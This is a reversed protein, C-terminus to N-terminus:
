PQSPAPSSQSQPLSELRAVLVDLISEIKNFREAIQTFGLGVKQKLERHEKRIKQSTSKFDDESSEPQEAGGGKKKAPQPSSDIIDTGSRAAMDPEIISPSISLPPSSAPPAATLTSLRELVVALQQKLEQNERMLREITEQTKSNEKTDSLM